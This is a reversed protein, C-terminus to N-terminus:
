CNTLLKYIDITVQVSDVNQILENERLLENGKAISEKNLSITKNFLQLWEDFNKVGCSRYMRITDFQSCFREKYYKCLPTYKGNILRYALFPVRNSIGDEVGQRIFDYLPSVELESTRVIPKVYKYKKLFSYFYSIYPKCTSHFNLSVLRSLFNPFSLFVIYFLERDELSLSNVYNQLSEFKGIDHQMRLIFDSVISENEELFFPLDIDSLSSVISTNLSIRVSTRPIYVKCGNDFGCGFGKSYRVRTRLISLLKRSLFEDELSECYKRIKTDFTSGKNIYSLLYRVSKIYSVDDMNNTIIDQSPEIYKVFYNAKIGKPTFKYRYTFLPEYVPEKRTGVNLSFLQKIADFLTREIIFPSMKDDTSLKSLFLIIHFHPRHKKDGYENVCLYRFDRDLISLNRIRKFLLQIHKYDSYLVKEGNPLLLCPIHKNDYTLTCFYMYSTRAEVLARQLISNYYSARCESCTCCPVEIYEKQSSMSRDLTIICGCESAMLARNYLPNKIRCPHLCM